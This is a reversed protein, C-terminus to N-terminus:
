LFLYLNESEKEFWDRVDFEHDTQKEINKKAPFLGKNFSLFLNVIEEVNLSQKEIWHIIM